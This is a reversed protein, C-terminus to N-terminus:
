FTIRNKRPGKTSFTSPSFDPAPRVKEASLQILDSVGDVVMGVVRGAENLAAHGAPEGSASM